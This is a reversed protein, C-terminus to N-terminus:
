RKWRRFVRTAACLRSYLYQRMYPDHKGCSAVLDCFEEHTFAGKAMNCRRCILQLNAQLNQGNRSIPLVHDLSVNSLKLETTCYKCNLGLNEQLLLSVWQRLAQRDGGARKFASQVLRYTRLNLSVPKSPRKGRRGYRKGRM